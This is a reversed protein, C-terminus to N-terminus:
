GERMRKVADRLTSESGIPYGVIMEGRGKYRKEIEDLMRESSYSAGIKAWLAAVAFRANADLTSVEPHRSQWEPELMPIVHKAVYFDAFETFQVLGARDNRRHLGDITTLFHGLDRYTRDLDLKRQSLAEGGLPASAEGKSAKAMWDDAIREDSMCGASVLACAAIAFAAGIRSSMTSEKAAM